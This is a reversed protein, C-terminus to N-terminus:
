AKAPRIFTSLIKPAAVAKTLQNVTIGKVISVTNSVPSVKDILPIGNPQTPDFPIKIPIAQAKKDTCM